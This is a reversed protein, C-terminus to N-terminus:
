MQSTKKLKLLRLIFISSLIIGVFFPLYLHYGLTVGSWLCLSLVLSLSGLTINITPTSVIKKLVSNLILLLLVYALIGSLIWGLFNQVPVGYWIGGDTYKWLGRAVAGPDLVMDSIILIGLYVLLRSWRPKFWQRALIFSGIVLPSWAVFVTWPTTNFLRYGFPMTYQFSSYPFGTYVGLTEIGLAFFGLAFIAVIGHKGYIRYLAYFAPLSIMIVALISGIEVFQDAPIYSM